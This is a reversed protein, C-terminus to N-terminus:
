LSAIADTEQLVQRQDGLIRLKDLAAELNTVVLGQADPGFRASISEISGSFNWLGVMVTTKPLRARIQLYLKRAHALALPQLASVIVVDPKDEVLQDIMEANTGLSICQAYDGERELLQVLMSGITEDAGTKAPVCVIRNFGAAKGGIPAPTTDRVFDQHDAYEENLEELLERTGRCVSDGGEADLDNEHCDRQAMGLAPIVVSDYLEQLRM